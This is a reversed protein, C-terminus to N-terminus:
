MVRITIATRNVPRRGVTRDLAEVQQGVRHEAAGHGRIFDSGDNDFGNLAFAAADNRMGPEESSQAFHRSRMPDKQDGVFHLGSHAPRAAEERAFMEIEIRVDNRERFADRGAQRQGGQESSLADHLPVVAAM